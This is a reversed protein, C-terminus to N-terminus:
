YPRRHLALFAILFAKEEDKSYSQITEGARERRFNDGEREVYNLV